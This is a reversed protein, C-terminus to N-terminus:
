FAGRILLSRRDDSYTQKGAAGPRTFHKVFAANASARDVSGAGVPIFGFNATCRSSESNEAVVIYDATQINKSYGYAFKQLVM